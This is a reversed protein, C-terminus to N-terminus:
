GGIEEIIKLLEEETHEGVVRKIEKNDKMFIFVPLVEGPSFKNAEDEYRKQLSKLDDIKKNNTQDLMSQRATNKAKLKAIRTNELQDALKKAREAAKSANEKYMDNMAKEYNSPGLGFMSLIGGLVAGGKKEKEEKSGGFLKKIGDGFFGETIVESHELLISDLYQSLERAERLDDNSVSDNLQSSLYFSLSKKM